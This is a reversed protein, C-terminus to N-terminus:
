GASAARERRRDAVSIVIALAAFVAIVGMAVVFALIWSGTRESLTFLIGPIIATGVAQGIRQGTQLIGGAVGGYRPDVANLTLTQNPSVTFGQSIGIVSLPFVLTWAPWGLWEVAMGTGMILLVGLGAIALGAIVMRRGADLVYRGSIQSGIGAFISSPLGLLASFLAVHGLHDQVFLPMVIWISTSGLFFVSVILIGNSFARNALLGLDVMPERGRDRYRAEWRVWVAGLMLGVPLAVWAVAGLGRELFPFMVCLLSVALLVIGVPDLDLRSRAGKPRSDGPVWYSGAWIAFVGIPVNMGFMWRWGTDPGLAAILVGGIVPGIATALAVTTGFLAFARARERGRFHQQIIGVVQPNLLGSGIGQVIRSLNLMQITPSLASIVSGLTFFALGILLMRKRGTADGIRGAPVLLVGFALAYGSLVWQLGSSSAHLDNGIPVLAVNIVSVAVLAMFLPALLVLLLRRRKVPPVDEANPKEAAVSESM